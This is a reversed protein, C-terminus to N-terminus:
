SVDEIGCAELFWVRDFRPNDDAFMQALELSICDACDIPRNLVSGDATSVVECGVHANLIEAIREYHQRTFM